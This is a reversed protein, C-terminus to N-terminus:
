TGLWGDIKTKLNGGVQLSPIRQKTQKRDLPLHFNITPSDKSCIFSHSSAGDLVHSPKGLGGRLSLLRNCWHHIRCDFREILWNWDKKENSSLKIFFGLYSFGEDLDRSDIGFLLKLESLLVEQAGSALFTSKHYNIELGSASCFTHLLSHIVSWESLNANTMIIV